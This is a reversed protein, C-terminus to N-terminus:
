LSTAHFLPKAALSGLLVAERIEMIYLKKQPGSFILFKLSSGHVSFLLSQHTKSIRANESKLIYLYNIAQQVTNKM